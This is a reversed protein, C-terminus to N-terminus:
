CEGRARENLFLQLQEIASLFGKVMNNVNFHHSVIEISRKAMNKRLNSDEVLRLLAEYIAQVDSDKVIYGNKDPRIMELAAQSTQTAIIPLGCAMAENIVFGWVDDLTPLIFIDVTSYLKILEDLSLGSNIFKSDELKLSNALNKLYPELHGSGLLVLAVHNYRSKLKAYAYLLYEVGKRKILQGVYLVIIKNEFGLQSKLEIKDLRYKSSADIFLENDIANSAIFVNKPEAGLNIIYNKSLKGPVVIANSRSFLTRLPRTVRGLISTPEKIGETWYIIPIKLIKATIFAVWITPDTYGSIIITDPLSLIINKIISPNLSLEGIPTIIPIRPLIKYKYNYNRPWLDWKRMNNKVSCYYVTLDVFESLKEFLPHRYPAITNHIFAVNKKKM